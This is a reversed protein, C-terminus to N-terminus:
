LCSLLFFAVKLTMSDVSTSLCFKVYCQTKINASTAKPRSKVAPGSGVRGRNLLVSRFRQDFLLVFQTTARNSEYQVQIEHIQHSSKKEDDRCTSPTM